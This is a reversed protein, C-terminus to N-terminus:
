NPQEDKLVPTYDLSALASMHELISVGADVPIMYSDYKLRPFSPAPCHSRTAARLSFFSSGRIKVKSVVEVPALAQLGHHSSMRRYGYKVNSAREKRYAFGDTRVRRKVNGNHGRFKIKPPQETRGTQSGWPGVWVTTPSLLRRPTNTPM